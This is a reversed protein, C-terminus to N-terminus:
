PCHSACSVAMTGSGFATLWFSLDNAGVGGSCDFDSRGYPNATGFDTLWASLDNAGVGGSGDLDYASVTPAQILTGNKFIRGGSLLTVANGGGTSGGLITFHVSGDAGTLKSVTKHVCDVTANADLQDACIFLDPCTSLDITIVAGVSPNNALDRGIVTFQGLPAAAIGNTGVLSICSPTIDNAPSPEAGAVPAILSAALLISLHFPQILRM